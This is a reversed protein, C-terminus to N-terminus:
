ADTTESDYCKKRAKDVTSYLQVAVENPGDGSLATNSTEDAHVHTDVIIPDHPHNSTDEQLAISDDTEDSFGDFTSDRKNKVKNVTSYLAAVMKANSSAIKSYTTDCLAPIDTSNEEGQQQQVPKTGLGYNLTNYTPDININDSEDASSTERQANVSSTNVISTITEYTPDTTNDPESVHPPTSTPIPIPTALTLPLDRYQGESELNQTNSDNLEVEFYDNTQLNRRSM